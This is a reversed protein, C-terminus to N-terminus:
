VFEFTLYLYFTFTCISTFSCIFTFSCVFMSILFCIFSHICMCIYMVCVFVLVFLLVFEFFTNRQIPVFNGDLYAARLYDESTRDFCLPPSSFITQRTLMSINSIFLSFILRSRAYYPALKRAIPSIHGNRQLWNEAVCRLDPKKVVLSVIM